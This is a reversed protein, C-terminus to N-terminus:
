ELRYGDQATYTIVHNRRPQADITGSWVIAETGAGRHIEIRVDRPGEALPLRWEDIAPGDNSIGKARFTRRDERGDIAIVISVEARRPKATTRGRMHVPLKAQEEPDLAAEHEIEGLVRFSLVLEPDPPAPNTVRLHSPAVVAAAIASSLVAAALAVRWLPRRPSPSAAASADAAARFRKAEDRLSQRDAANFDVVRWGRAEPLESPLGARLPRFAPKRAGELRESVWRNGDRAASEERGDRVVFVGGAGAALLREVTKARVWSATPVITVRYGPLDAEWRARRGPDAGGEVDAAVMAHWLTEGRAAADRTASVLPGETALTDIWTLEMAESDCSGVCVGCGVCLGPDVWARADFRAGDRRPVMSVADFPCDQVCQTCAHCRSERVVTQWPTVPREPDRESAFRRARKGLLWPIAAFGLTACLGIWLGSNQFRLGLALPTLYWADVTFHEPKAAMDAPPDLPAPVLWSAVGMGAVLALSLRRGPLLRTRNLRSLHLVLGAAIGLPLLMHLFFVVFFLLSPVLRDAVFQRALPEGFVPLVDMFRMSAVAIERAPQDWVLWYGTWGIFWVLALLLVGSAWALWRAGAFKRAVLMRAAHVFLLLMVLDSSYRHLARVFGGLAGGQIAQLSAHAKSHSPSYWILLSVGSAVAVILALNAARGSQALPNDGAPLWREMWGDVRAVVRDMAALARQFRVPPAPTPANAEPAGLAEPPDSAGGGIATPAKAHDGGRASATAGPAEPTRSESM